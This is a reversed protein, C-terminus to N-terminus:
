RDLASRTDLCPQGAVSDQEIDSFADPTQELADLNAIGLREIPDGAAPEGPHTSRFQDIPDQRTPDFHIGNTGECEIYGRIRACL